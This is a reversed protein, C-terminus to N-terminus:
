RGLIDSGRHGVGSEDARWVRDFITWEQDSTTWEGFISVGEFNDPLSGNRRLDKLSEIVGQLGSGLNEAREHFNWRDGSYSPVGVLVQAPMNRLSELVGTTQWGLYKIYLNAFPVGSDYGVLVVQDTRRGIEKYYDPEWSYPLLHFTDLHPAYPTLKMAAVSITKNGIAARVEALLDLYNPDGSPAPEIDLHVGDFAFDEVFRRCEEAIRARVERDALSLGGGGALTRGRVWALVQMTTQSRHIDNVLGGAYASGTKPLTGDPRLTGQDAYVWKIGHGRLTDALAMRKDSTILTSSWRDEIWVANEGRDFEAGTPVGNPYDFDLLLVILVLALVVRATRVPWKQTGGWPSGLFSIRSTRPIDLRPHDQDNV